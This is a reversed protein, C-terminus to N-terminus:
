SCGEKGPSFLRWSGTEKVSMNEFYMEALIRNDSVFLRGDANVHVAETPALVHIQMIDALQQAFGDDKAGTSCSILHIDGGHYSPSSRLIRAFEEASYEISEDENTYILISDATGHCVITEYSNMDKIKSGYKYLLDHKNVFEISLNLIM